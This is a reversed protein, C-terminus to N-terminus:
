AEVSSWDIDPLALALILRAVSDPDKWRARGRAIVQGIPRFQAFGMTVVYVMMASWEAREETVLEACLSKVMVYPELFTAKTLKAIGVDDRDLIERQMLKSICPDSLLDGYLASVFALLRRQPLGERQMLSMYKADVQALASAFAALYLTRKDHFHRYMVPFTIGAAKTIQRTTVADFGRDAFLRSAVFLIRNHTIASKEARSQKSPLHQVAAARVRAGSDIRMKKTIAPKPAAALRKTSSRM